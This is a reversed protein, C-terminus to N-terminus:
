PDTLATRVVGQPSGGVADYVGFYDSSEGSFAPVVVRVAVATWALGLASIVLGPGAAGARSRTGSGSRPSGCASSSGAPRLRSPVSRSRSCDIRTSSGSGLLLLPISLTLPHFGDMVVWAMWPYALYALALLAAERESGLYRRGLWLVPLAGLAVAVIQVAVLTM